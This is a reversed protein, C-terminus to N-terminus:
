TTATWLRYVPTAFFVPPDGLSEDPRVGPNGEPAVQVVHRGEVAVTALAAEIKAVLDRAAEPLRAVITFQYLLEADAFPDAIASDRGRSGGPLPYIVVYDPGPDPQRLAALAGSPARAIEVPRPSLAETLREKVARDHVELDVTITM